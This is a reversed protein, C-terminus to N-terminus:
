ATGWKRGRAAFYIWVREGIRSADVGEGVADITGSGDQNPTQWDDVEGRARSKWDTPNVGSFAIRVGVEGPGPEPTEVETVEIVEAAPGSRTYRAARMVPDYTCRSLLRESTTFVSESSSAAADRASGAAARASAGFGPVGSYTWRSLWFM